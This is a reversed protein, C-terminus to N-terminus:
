ESTRFLLKKAEKLSISPKDKEEAKIRRLDILDEADELLDQITTFEEKGNKTLFKFIFFENM